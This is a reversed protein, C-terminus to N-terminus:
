DNFLSEIKFIRDGWGKGFISPSHTAIILQCNPNLARLTDILKHQWRIHLSIEPEDLLLVSPQEDQLFVTFFILLLQKEGASLDHIFIDEEQVKHRFKISNTKEDTLIEKHSHEFYENITSFFTQIKQQYNQYDKIDGSTSALKNLRYDLFTYSDQKEKRFIIDELEIELLTRMRLRPDANDFNKLIREARSMSIPVDFTNLNSIKGIAYNGWDQADGSVQKTDNFKIEVKTKNSSFKMKKRFDSDNPADIPEFYPENFLNEIVRFITTKGSGNIGVLINVDDNLEWKFHYHGWLNEIEIANIKEVRRSDNQM